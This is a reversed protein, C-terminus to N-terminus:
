EENSTKIPIPIVQNGLHLEITKANKYDVAEFTLQSYYTTIGFELSGQSPVINMWKESIPVEKGDVYLRIYDQDEWVKSDEEAYGERADYYPHTFSNWVLGLIQAESMYSEAGFAHIDDPVQEPFEFWFATQYASFTATDIRLSYGNKTVTQDLNVVQSKELFSSDPVFQYELNKIYHSKIVKDKEGEEYIHLSTMSITMENESNHFWYPLVRLKVYYVSEENESQEAIESETTAYHCRKSLDNYIESGLTYAELTFTQNAELIPQKFQVRFLAYQTEQDGTICELTITCMDNEKTENVVQIKGDEAYSASTEDKRNERFIKSFDLVGTAAFVTVTSTIALVIIVMAVALKPFQYSRKRREERTQIQELVKEKCEKTMVVQALGEEMNKKWKNM